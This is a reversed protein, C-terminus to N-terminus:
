APGAPSLLRGMQEEFLASAFEYLEADYRNIRRIADLTENPVDSLAPRHRNANRRVRPAVDHWGFAASLCRLSDDFREMIGVVEVANALNWKAEEVMARSVRGVPVDFHDAACLWRVQDNDLEHSARTVAYEHLSLGGIQPHLYHDPNAAVFHYHSVVRDVPDRLMTIYTAPRSLLRHLGFHVHGQVLDFSDREEQSLSEFAKVREADGTFRFGRCGQYHRVVIEQLTSGAAKPIHIFILPAPFARARAHDTPTHAFKEQLEQQLGPSLDPSIM